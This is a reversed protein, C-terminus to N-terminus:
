LDHAHHPWATGALEPKQAPDIEDLTGIRTVAADYSEIFNVCRLLTSKGSGSPGILCVVESRDVVLDVGRLVALAGFAKTVDRMEIAPVSM